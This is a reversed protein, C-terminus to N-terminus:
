HMNYSNYKSLPTCFSIGDTPLLVTVVVIGFISLLFTVDSM